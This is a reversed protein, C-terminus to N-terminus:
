GVVSNFETADSQPAEVPPAPTPAPQSGPVLLRVLKSCKEEPTLGELEGSECMDVWAALVGNGLEQLGFGGIVCRTTAETVRGRGRDRQVQLWQDLRQAIADNLPINLSTTINAM